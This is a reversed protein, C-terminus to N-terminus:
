SQEARREPLRARRVKFFSEAVMADSKLGSAAMLEGYLEQKEAPTVQEVHV